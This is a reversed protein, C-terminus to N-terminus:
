LGRPLFWVDARLECLQRDTVHDQDDNAIVQGVVDLQSESNVQEFVDKLAWADEQEMSRINVRATLAIRLARQYM